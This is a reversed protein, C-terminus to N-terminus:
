REHRVITVASRIEDICFRMRRLSLGLRNCQALLEPLRTSDLERISVLVEAVQHRRAIAPLEQWGGLVPVGEVTLRHKRIDDDLFGVPVIGLSPNQLLERVLLAGGRGAGYILATRGRARKKRLQEDIHSIMGRAAALVCTAMVTDLLFVGRSFREFRFFMLLILLSAAVGGLLAKAILALEAAGFSRWVQRYKGAIYLAALQVVIVVPFARAFPPFFIALDPGTFRLRFAAYYVVALLVGDVLMEFLRWRYAVESLLPPQGAPGAAADAPAVSVHGLVIGTAALAVLFLTALAVASLTSLHGIGLALGCGAIALAHLSLVATRESTGLGVLRHSTHDRGGHWPRRQALHRTVTVFATDFIPVALILVPVLWVPGRGAELAPVAVITVTALFSGILFSGCDGMFISAPPFNFFLFGLTAGAFAAVALALPTPVPGALLVLYAGLAVLATGASLGDMNDLLNFANTVGVIWAFAIVQDLLLGGTVSVPPVFAVVGGAICMQAVLKSLPRIKWIDDVAGLAFMLGTCVLVPVLQTDFRTSAAVGAAFGVAIAVGGLLPVPTRHWRDRVPMAYVRLRIAM